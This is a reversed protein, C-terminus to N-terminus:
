FDQREIYICAAVLMVIMFILSSRVPAWPRVRQRLAQLDGTQIGLDTTEDNKLVYQITNDLESPKPFVTYIPAIVYYYAIELPTLAPAFSDKLAFTGLEYESVRKARDVVLLSNHSTFLAASIDDQGRVDALQMAPNGSDGANLVHLRANHFVIAFWSGDASACVFRPQSHPEPEYQDRLELEPVGFNLVRGDALALLITSGAFTIAAGQEEDGEVDVSKALSYKSDTCKLLLLKGRSYIVVDASKPNVAAVAPSSLKLEPEPGAARFPKGLSQPIEMFFVKLKKKTELEGALREVGMHTVALLRGHPDPLLAFTSEPLTPGDVQMWGDSERGLLLTGGSRFLGHQGFQAALLVKNEADYIPGLVRQMNGFDSSLFTSEWESDSSNWRKTGGREDVAVLTDGAQVLRVIKQTEILLSQFGGKTAGVLWCVFWFLITLVVSVIANRWVVGTFASVSYYVAFLFLFILICLLFGHNWIDLRLGLLLWLGTFFYGANILIFACGGAFKALFMLSRSVPKSLLLSLSGPDFMQPIISATVLIATLLAIPGVFIKFSVPLVVLEVIKKLRRESLRIPPSVGAGFYTIVIQKAPQPRFFEQYPLEILLRNLRALDDDALNEIGRDLFDRAESGLLVDDWDEQQYLDRQQLLGNLKDVIQQLETFFSFNRQEKSAAFETLLKRASEDLKSVIRYGPSPTGSDYQRMMERAVARADLFDGPRFDTTQERHFGLPALAALGFTILILLIWLVRSALAERFSDKIIALYPRM